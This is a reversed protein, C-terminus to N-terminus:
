VLSLIVEKDIESQLIINLARSLIATIKEILLDADKPTVILDTNERIQRGTLEYAITEATVVTPVGIAIVPVGLTNKSIEKRKNKVGSGPSIGGDTIQICSFLRKTSKTCLADIVIVAEPKVTNVAGKIIELAEIGTKGLVNPAIVSVSKLKELGFNEAFSGMIHRTALIKEAVFPGISDSTIEYNGLGVVLFNKNKKIKLNDFVSFIEKEINSPDIIKDVSGFEVTYYKGKENEWFYLEVDGRKELKKHEKGNEIALDTRISM